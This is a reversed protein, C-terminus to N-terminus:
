YYSEILKIYKDKANQINFRQFDNYANKSLYELLVDDNILIKMMQIFEDDDKAIFGDVGDTITEVVADGWITTITPVGNAKAEIITLPFGERKSTMLLATYSSYINKNEAYGKLFINNELKHSQIYEKIKEELPGQGYMDLIIDGNEKIMKNIIKLLRIPDKDDNYRGIFIFRNRKKKFDNNFQIGTNDFFNYVYSSPFHVSGKKADIQNRFLVLSPNTMLKIQLKSSFNGNWFFEYKSHIELIFKRKKTMFIAAAPCSVLVKDYNNVIKRLKFRTTPIYIFYKIMSIICEWVKIFDMKKLYEIIRLFGTDLHTNNIVICKSNFQKKYEQPCDFVSIIKINYTDSLLQELGRYMTILGGSQPDPIKEFMFFLTKM